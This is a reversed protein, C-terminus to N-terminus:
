YPASWSDWRSPITTRNAFRNSAIIRTQPRQYEALWAGWWYFSSNSIIHHKCKSLIWLSKTADAFGNDATIHHVPGPLEISQLRPSMKSSFVFFVPNSVNTSLKSAARAYFDLETLGGVGAKSSGPMEEFLRIGVAVSNTSDVLEAVRQFNAEMPKPPLLEEAIQDRFEEFYSECQWHGHFWVSRRSRFGAIEDYYQQAVERIYTGWWRRSILDTPAAFFKENLREYWFPIRAIRSAVRARIPLAALEYSRKFVKDRTFGSWTDLHLDAGNRIALARSAAYQFMQNGLGGMVHVFVKPNESM